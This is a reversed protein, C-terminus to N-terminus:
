TGKDTAIMIYIGNNDLQVNSDNSQLSPLLILGAPCDPIAFNRLSLKNVRDWLIFIQFNISM